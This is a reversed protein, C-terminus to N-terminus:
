VQKLEGSLSRSSNDDWGARSQPALVFAPHKEQNEPRAWFHTGIKNDLSIQGINDTGASGAGHLWIVIPYKQEPKYGQPVFLRYPMGGHKKYIGPIFGDISNQQILLSSLILLLM